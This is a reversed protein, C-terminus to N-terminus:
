NDNLKVGKYELYDYLDEEVYEPYKNRKLIFAVDKLIEAKGDIYGQWYLETGISMNVGM